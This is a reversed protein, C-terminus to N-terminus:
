FGLQNIIPFRIWEPLFGLGTEQSALSLIPEAIVYEVEILFRVKETPFFRRVGLPGSTEM